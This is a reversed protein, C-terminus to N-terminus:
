HDSLTLVVIHPVLENKRECPEHTFKAWTIKDHLINGAHRTKESARPVICRLKYIFKEGVEPCLSIRDRWWLCEISRLEANRL